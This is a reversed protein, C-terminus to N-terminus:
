GTWNMIIPIIAIIIINIIAVINTIPVEVSITKAEGSSYFNVPVIHNWHKCHALNRLFLFFKTLVFNISTKLEHKRKAESNLNM